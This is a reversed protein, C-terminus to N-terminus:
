RLYERELISEVATVAQRTEVDAAKIIEQCFLMVLRNIEYPSVDRVGLRDDSVVCRVPRPQTLLHWALEKAFGQTAPTITFLWTLCREELSDSRTIHRHRFRQAMELIAYDYM